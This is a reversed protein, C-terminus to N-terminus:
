ARELPKPAAEAASVERQRKERRARERDPVFRYDPLRIVGGCSGCKWGSWSRLMRISVSGKLCMPCNMAEPVSGLCTHALSTPPPIWAGGELKRWRLRCVSLAATIGLCILVLLPGGIVLVLVNELVSASAFM